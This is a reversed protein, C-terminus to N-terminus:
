CARALGKHRRLWAWWGGLAFAALLAYGAGDMFSIGSAWRNLPDESFVYFIGALAFALGILLFGAAPVLNWVVRSRPVGARESVRALQAM